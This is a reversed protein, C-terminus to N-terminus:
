THPHSDTHRNTHTATQKHSPNETHLQRHTITQIHSESHTLRYGQRHTSRHSLSVLLSRSLSHLDSDKPRLSHTQSHTLTHSTRSTKGQIYGDSLEAIGWREVRQVENTAAMCSPLFEGVHGKFYASKLYM